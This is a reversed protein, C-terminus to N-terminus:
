STVLTRLRAVADELVERRKCFTFRILSSGADKNDYFVVNPVAVVGCREPLSRCFALGDTAGLPHIDATVFYTGRPRLVDFGAARLGNMLLDRRAGLDAAFDAYYSDPLSLGVVMAHQFPTGTAYTLFQKATQVARVLAPPACVWGVKWGTCSFTKGASSITVTRDHMGPLTALPIHEADDYVLHEYVEDTIAILDHELCLEAILQLEARDFVKGTPNHPSNLLLVKARPTIARRLEEPDFAYEPTRLTVVRRQAGAMAVCAAYSDYYPEFMVVEDGPECLAILTAAIAESPFRADRDVAEDHPVLSNKGILHVQQVVDAFNWTPEVDIPNVLTKM